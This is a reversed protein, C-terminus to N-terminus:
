SSPLGLERAILNRMIESSGGGITMIRADRMLLQADSEMAYGYGGFIQLAEYAVRNSMETCYAKTMSAQMRARERHQIRNALDYMLLKAIHIDMAMDAVKHQIVQFAGIPQGFQRRNKAYELAQDFVAEAAGTCWAALCLREKELNQQLLSWGENEEGLRMGIPVLVDQYTVENTGIAREGLTPIRRITLGPSKADVLLLSIGKQKPGDSSTRAAVLIFNAIHSGSSWMKTGNLVYTDGVREAKLRLSAADSGSDPESLSLCFLLDGSMIGPLLQRKQEESGYALLSQAGHVASRYVMISFSMMGKALEELLITLEVIGGGAGGYQEPVAIGLYGLQALKKYQEFPPMQREDCQRSFGAPLEKRVFDAVAGKLLIQEETFQV